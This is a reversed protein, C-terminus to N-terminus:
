DTDDELDRRIDRNGMTRSMAAARRRVREYGEADTTDFFRVTPVYFTGKTNSKTDVGLILIVNHWIREGENAVYTNIEKAAQTAASRLQLMVQVLEGEDPKEPNTVIYGAYNFTIGCKPPTQNDWLRLPCGRANAPTTLREEPTGECLGGPDGEGNVLDFSRCMLGMGQAFYSRSKRLDVPIFYVTDGFAEGSQSNYWQGMAVGSSGKSTTFLTNTKSMAQSIRLKPIVFDSVGLERTLDRSLLDAAAPHMGGTSAQVPSLNTSGGQTGPNPTEARVSGGANVVPSSVSEPGFAEDVEDDTLLEDLVEPPEAVVRQGDINRAAARRAARAATSPTAM